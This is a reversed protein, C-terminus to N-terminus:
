VGLIISPTTLLTWHWLSGLYSASHLDWTNTQDNLWQHYTTLTFLLFQPSMPCFSTATAPPIVAHHLHSMAPAQKPFFPFYHRSLASPQSPQKKEHKLTASTQFKVAKPLSFPCVPSAPWFPPHSTFTLYSFLPALDACLYRAQTAHPLGKGVGFELMMSLGSPLTKESGAWRAQEQIHSSTFGVPSPLPILKSKVGPTLCGELGKIDLGWRGTWSIKEDGTALDAEWERAKTEWAQQWRSPHGEWNHQAADQQGADARLSALATRALSTLM